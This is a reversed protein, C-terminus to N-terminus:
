PLMLRYFRNSGIINTVTIQGNTIAVPNTLTVWNSSASISNNVQLVFAAAAAPWSLVVNTQALSIKLKPVAYVETEDENSNGAADSLTVRVWYFGPVYGTTDWVTSWGDVGNTDTGVLQWDDLLDEITGGKPGCWSRGGVIRMCQGGGGPPYTFQGNRALRNTSPGGTAPDMFVVTYTDDSNVTDDISILAMVHGTATPNNCPAIHIVMGKTEKNNEHCTLAQKIRHVGYGGATTPLEHSIWNNTTGTLGLAQMMATTGAEENDYSTGGRGTGKHRALFHIITKRICDDQNSNTSCPPHTKLFNVINSNSLFVAAEATPDCMMSGGAGDYPFNTQGLSVPRFSIVNATARVEFVAQTAQGGQAQLLVHDGVVDSFRPTVFFPTPPTQDVYVVTTATLLGLSTSLQAVVTYNGDPLGSTNWYASWGDGSRGPQFTNFTQDGGDTDFGIFVKQSTIPDFYFFQAAQVEIYPDAAHAKLWVAGGSVVSQAGPWQFVAMQQPLALWDFESANQPGLTSTAIYEYVSGFVLNSLTISHSTTQIPNFATQTYIYNPGFVVRSDSPLDTAWQIQASTPSLPTYYPGDIIQLASLRSGPLAIMAAAVWFLNGSRM